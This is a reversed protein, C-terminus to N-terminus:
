LALSNEGRFHGCYSATIMFRTASFKPGAAVNRTDRTFARDDFATSDRMFARAGRRFADNFALWRAWQVSDSVWPQVRNRTGYSIKLGVQEAGFRVARGPFHLAQPVTFPMLSFLGPVSRIAPLHHTFIEVYLRKNALWEPRVANRLDLMDRDMFPYLTEAYPRCLTGQMSMYRRTRNRYTVEAYIHNFASYRTKAERVELALDHLIDSWVDKLARHAEPRIPRYHADSVRVHDFIYEAMEEDSRPAGREAGAFGFVQRLKSQGHKLSQGGVLGGGALGDLVITVGDRQMAPIAAQHFFETIGHLPFLPTHLRTFFDGELPIFTHRFGLALALQRAYRVEAVEPYGYTYAHVASDPWTGGILRSDMGGSVKLGVGTDSRHLRKGATRMTAVVHEATEALTRLNLHRPAPQPGTRKMIQGNSWAVTWESAPPLLRVNSMATRTGFQYGVWYLEAVGVPDIAGAYGQEKLGAYTSAFVLRDRLEAVYLPLGGYHDNYLRTERQQYDNIVINFFGNQIRAVFERANAQLQEAVYRREEPTIGLYLRDGVVFHGDIAIELAGIRIPERWTAQRPLMKIQPEGGFAVVGSLTTAPPPIPENEVRIEERLATNM